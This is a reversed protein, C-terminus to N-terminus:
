GITVSGDLNLSFEVRTTSKALVRPLRGVVLRTSFPPAPYGDM